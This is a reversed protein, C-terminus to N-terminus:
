IDSSLILKPISQFFFVKSHLKQYCLHSSTFRMVSSLGRGRGEIVSETWEKPKPKTKWKATAKVLTPLKKKKMKSSVKYWNIFCLRDYKDILSQLNRLIMFKIFFVTSLKFRYTLNIDIPGGGGRCVCVVGWRSVTLPPTTVIYLIVRLTVKNSEM